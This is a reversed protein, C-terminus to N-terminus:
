APGFALDPTRRHSSRASAELAVLIVACVMGLSASIAVPLDSTGFAYALWCVQSAIRLTWTSVSVGSTIGARWSGVSDYLQPLTASLGISFGVYGATHAPVTWAATLVVAACAALVLARRPRSLRAPVLLVVVAAGTILLANGPLQPMAQTRIGYTFWAMCGLATLSWSVPSVGSLSPHRLVRVIQPVVMVVGFVSGLYGFAIALGHETV